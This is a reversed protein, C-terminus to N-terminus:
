FKDKFKINCKEYLGFGVISVQAWEPALYIGYLIFVLGALKLIFIIGCLIGFALVNETIHTYM